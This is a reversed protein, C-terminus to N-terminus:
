RGHRNEKAYKQIAQIPKQYGTCRCLNGCLADKIEAETPDPSESVLAHASLIMGPTCYGCQIAGDVIFREQLPHLHDPDGLAEITTIERGEAQAALMTCCTVAKGDLLITCAGCTGDECGHKVGQFGADRLVWMLREGLPARVERAKGNITLTLM